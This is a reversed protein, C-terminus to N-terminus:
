QALDFYHPDHTISYRSNHSKFLPLEKRCVKEAEQVVFLGSIVLIGRVLVGSGICSGCAVVAVM